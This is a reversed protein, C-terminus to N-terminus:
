PQLLMENGQKTRKVKPITFPSANEQTDQKSDVAYANKGTSKAGDKNEFPGDNYVGQPQVREGTCSTMPSYRSMKENESDQINRESNKTLIDFVYAM